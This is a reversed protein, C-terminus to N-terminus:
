DKEKLSFHKPPKNNILEAYRKAESDSESVIVKLRGENSQAAERQEDSIITTLQGTPKKDLEAQLSANAETLENLQKAAADAAANFQDQLTSIRTSLAVKEDEAAKLATQLAAVEKKGEEQAQEETLGAAKEDSWGFLSAFWKPKNMTDTNANSGTTQMKNKQKILDVVKNVATQLTGISDILGNEKSQLLNYVSGDMKASIQPRSAKVSSIFTENIPDISETRMTNQIEETLPEVQNVIAKNTSKTARVITIEPMNGAAVMKAINPIAAYTGISGFVTHNNKNGVIVDAKSAVWYAASAVTGDGFVGIPKQSNEVALALEMTGDTSGGPSDMVLVIGDVSPDNNAAGILSQYHQMGYSCAEGYKTLPGIMPILAINKSGAKVSPFGSSSIEMKYDPAFDSASHGSAHLELDSFSLLSDLRPLLSEITQKHILSELSRGSQLISVIRNLYGEEILWHQASLTTLM